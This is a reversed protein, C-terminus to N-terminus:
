TSGEDSVIRVITGSFCTSTTVDGV